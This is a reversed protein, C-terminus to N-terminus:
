VFSFVVLHVVVYMGKSCLKVCDSLDSLNSCAKEVPASDEPHLKHCPDYIHCEVNIPCTIGEDFCCEGPACVIQCLSQHNSNAIANDHNLCADFIQEMTYETSAPAPNTPTHQSSSSGTQPATAGNLNTCTAWGQCIPNAVCSQPFGAKWCCEALGCAYHCAYYDDAVTSVKDADCVQPLDMPATNLKEGNVTASSGDIITSASHSLLNPCNDTYQKCTSQDKCSKTNNNANWCCKAANCAKECEDRGAETDLSSDSCATVLYAPAEPISPTTSTTSGQQQQQSQNPNLNHCDQYGACEQRDSCENTKWCCEAELCAGECEEFGALTDISDKSCSFKLFLPAPPIDVGDNNTAPNSDNNNNATSAQIVNGNADYVKQCPEYQSCFDENQHPCKTLGPDFCCDANSCAMICQQRGPGAINTDSCKELIETSIKIDLHDLADMAMCASYQGCVPEKPCPQVHGDKQWCCEAKMCENVCDQFGNITNLNTPSCITSLNAPAQAPLSSSAPKPVMMTGMDVSLVSCHQHYIFCNDETADNLCSLALNSPYSCCDAAECREECEYFGRESLVNTDTCKIALDAPPPKLGVQHQHSTPYQSHLENARGNNIAIVIIILIGLCLVCIGTFIKCARVEKPNTKSLKPDYSDVEYTGVHASMHGAIDGTSMDLDFLNAASHELKMSRGFRAPQQTTSSTATTSRELDFLDASSHELGVSRGFRAPRTSTDYAKAEAADFDLGALIQPDSDDLNDM